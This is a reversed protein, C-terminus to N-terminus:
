RPVAKGASRIVKRTMQGVITDTILLMVALIILLAGGIGAAVRFWNEKNTIFDGINGVAKGVDGVADTVGGVPNPIGIGPQKVEIDTFPKYWPTDGNQKAAKVGFVAVGYQARYTGNKYTSWDNLKQGADKWIKFAVTVCVAPNLLSENSAIGYKARREAGMKGLMNIQLWGYSEDGTRTNFNTAKPDLGSEAIGIAVIDYAVKEPFGARLALLGAEQATLAGTSTPM